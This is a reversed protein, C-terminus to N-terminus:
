NKLFRKILKKAQNGDKIWKITKDKLFWTEQRRAYQHTRYKIKQVAEKLCQEQTPIEIVRRSQGAMPPAESPSYRTIAQAFGGFPPPTSPKRKKFLCEGIEKYGIGSMSPLSSPYKRTLRKTERVLGQKMMADVRQDIREYLKKRPIKIGIQLANFLPKGKKRLQSFPKKATLCVELARIIRRPNDKQVFQAAEPDFKLLKQYYPKLVKEKILKLNKITAKLKSSQVKLKKEIEKELRKRLNLNPPVRPVELNDVIAQIYLGTGGVLFPIKGRRLIDYIVKLAEKKYEAVTFEQNPNVIDIMYHPIGDIKGYYYKKSKLNQIKTKLKSSQAKLKGTGINMGCYIQRSDASVIEGRFKKALKITLESKGSATPGLIVILPPLKPTKNKLRIILKKKKLKLKYNQMKVKSKQM